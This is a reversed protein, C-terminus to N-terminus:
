AAQARQSAPRQSLRGVYEQLKPQGELLGMFQGWILTSGIMVDAASFHDGLLYPGRELAQTLVRAVEGFKRKGEALVKASRQDEPLMVSHLFVELVPPELTAISYVIWQYYLGRAPTGVAPALGKDAFKDALYMCIAASEFLKLDGDELAPVVGHPHIKLYDASKQEGKSIDVHVLDYPVGLEELLWLPRGSRSRPSHYLKM